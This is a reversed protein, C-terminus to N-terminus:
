RYLDRHARVSACSISFKQARNGVSKWSGALQRGTGGSFGNVIKQTFIGYDYRIGCGYAAINLASMSDMYCSALRGLGGNGLGPDPEQEELEELAFGSAKLAERSEEEMELNLIYNKLFRGPLFEMSLYYVRKAHTDYYLRQDSLWREILRDRVCYALGNYYTDRRPPNFDNGLMAVIHRKISNELGPTPTANTKQDNEASM